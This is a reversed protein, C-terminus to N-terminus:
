STVPGHKDDWATLLERGKDTAVVPGHTQEPPSDIRAAGGHILHEVAAARLRYLSVSSRIEWTDAGHKPRDVRGTSIAHLM